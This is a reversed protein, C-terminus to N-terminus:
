QLALRVDLMTSRKRPTVSWCRRILDKIIKPWRNGRPPQDGKVFVSEEFEELTKIHGFPKKLACVEWLLVGFSYVDAPLSYGLGIGVEPSM